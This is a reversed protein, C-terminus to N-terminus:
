YIREGPPKVRIGLSINRSNVNFLDDGTLLIDMYDRMEYEYGLRIKSWLRQGGATANNIDYIDGRWTTKDSPYFAIGGGLQSSIVGLRFGFDDSVKSNFLVDLLSLQRTPGEGIGLSFYNKESQIFDLSGKVSNATTGIDVGASTRIDLKGMSEFFRNASSLTKETEKITGKVNEQFKPDAVIDSIGKNTLRLEATLKELDGAVKDATLVTNLFSQQLKPNEVMLRINELIKKTEELGQSGIDVFDVIGSTKKGYLMNPSAYIAESSGPIVELYKQGVIGDYAIRLFSDEPFKINRNIVANIRIEQPGPDIAMVKGVRFGRYRVESGLTLGEISQFSGILEYGERVMFIETKWVIVAGLAIIAVITILGVKAPTSLSGM